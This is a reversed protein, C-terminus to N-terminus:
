RRALTVRLTGFSEELGVETALLTVMVTARAFALPRLLAGGAWGVRHQLVAQAFFAEPCLIVIRQRPEALIAVRITSPAGARPLEAARSARGGQVEVFQVILAHGTARAVLLTALGLLTAEAVRLGTAAPVARRSPLSPHRPRLEGRSVRGNGFHVRAVLPCRGIFVVRNRQRYRGGGGDGDGNTEYGDGQEGSYEDHKLCYRSSPFPLVLTVRLQGHPHFRRVINVRVVRWLQHGLCKAFNLKVVPGAWRLTRRGRSVTEFGCILPGSRTNRTGTRIPSTHRDLDPVALLRAELGNLTTRSSSCLALLSSLFFFFSIFSFFFLFVFFVFGFFFFFYYLSLSFITFRIFFM